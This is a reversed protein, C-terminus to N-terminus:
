GIEGAKGIYIYPNGRGDIGCPHRKTVQHKNEDFVGMPMLDMNISALCNKYVDSGMREDLGLLKYVINNNTTEYVIGQFGLDDKKMWFKNNKVMDPNEFNVMRSLKDTEIQKKCSNGVPSEFWEVYRFSNATSPYCSFESHINQSVHQIIKMHGFVQHSEHSPNFPLMWGFGILAMCFTFVYVSIMVMYDEADM